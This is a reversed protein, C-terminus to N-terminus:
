LLEHRRGRARESSQAHAARHRGAGRRGGGGGLWQWEHDTDFLGTLGGLALGGILGGAISLGLAARGSSRAREAHERAEPVCGVYDTLGRWGLGRAVQRGGGWMEYAGHYQLTLEGRAVVRPVYRTEACGIALVVLLALAARV